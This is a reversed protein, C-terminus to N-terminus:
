NFLNRFFEIIKMIFALLRAWFSMGTGSGSGPQAPRVGTSFAANIMALADEGFEEGIDGPIFSDEDESVFRYGRIVPESRNADVYLTVENKCKEIYQNREAEYAEESGYVDVSEMMDFLAGYLLDLDACYDGENLDDSVDKIPRWNPDYIKILSLVKDTAANAKDEGCVEILDYPLCISSTFGPTVLACINEPDAQNVDIIVFYGEDLSESIFNERATNFLEVSGFYNVNYISDFVVGLVQDYYTFCKGPELFETYNCVYEWESDAAFAPAGTATLMLVALLLALIKKCNKM